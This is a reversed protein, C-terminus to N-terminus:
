GGEYKSVMGLAAKLEKACRAFAAAEGPSAASEEATEWVEFLSFLRDSLDVECRECEPHHAYLCGLPDPDATTKPAKM